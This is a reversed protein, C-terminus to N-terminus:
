LSQRGCLKLIFRKAVGEAWYGDDGNAPAPKALFACHGGHETELLQIHPNAALAARTEPVIRVFPDDCAHLLLTPIAIRGLVRAASARHYYDDADRFGAYLSTIREDFDRISVVGNARNPDFARPFLFAKRRYRSVLARVFRREYFRNPPLHLADASPGLDIAASVGVVARLQPPADLGLEGALKVVLNGGMSYGILSISSLNQTDIFHRMVAGVDGSMGSHYLTPTLRETGGCNRMNMRIVNCGAEWFKTSNGLVYQSRSSGELGHLILVTPRTSRQPLPQWHCECMVQSPNQNQSRTQSGGLTGVEVLEAVSPPLHNPRPLLNGAITQVHGNALWPRPHFPPFDAPWPVTPCAENSAALEAHTGSLTAM